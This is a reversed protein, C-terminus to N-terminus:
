RRRARRYACSQEQQPPQTDIVRQIESERGIVPDLQGNAAAETLDRSFQDLTKTDSRKNQRQASPQPRGPAASFGQVQYNPGGLSELLETYLKNIDAGESLLLRVAVSDSERLMGYAPARNRYLGPGAQRGEAAALEIVRKARPTLGQAPQATPSGRGVARIVLDKLRQEDFGYSKLTRAASSDKEKSLGILIHESGVYGHGLEAAANYAYNLAKKARETLRYEFNM